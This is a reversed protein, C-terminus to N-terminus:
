FKRAFFLNFRTDRGTSAGNFETNWLLVNLGFELGQGVTWKNHVYFASNKTRGGVAIDSDRPDDVTYGLALRHNGSVNMGFEAWGGSSQVEDGTTTNVGQGVGGRFDSLNSGTWLEGKVDIGGGLNVLFDAGLVSATFDTEGGVATATKEWANLGWIGIESNPGRWGFRAQVNPMGADEGDRVGDADLDKADIAGTLGLAVAFKSNASGGTYRIQPRRDGLNGANWMLSDDNQSPILPSVLDWTQGILWSGQGRALKFFLHRARPTERSESGGGQFDIEIQGTVVWGPMASEPAAFNLGIRTLRPHLTFRNSEGGTMDPSNIWFPSQSNPNPMQTDYILDSRLQGYVTITDKATRVDNQVIPATTAAGLIEYGVEWKAEVSKGDAEAYPYIFYNLPAGKQPPELVLDRGHSFAVASRPLVLNGFVSKAEEDHDRDLWRRSDSADLPMWTGGIKAWMWCHYGGITGTTPVPEPLPIGTVPFGYELFAPIGMARALSIVYSHLDSCNGKKYDCVFAVDGMGLQPSEKNYDYQMSAVTHDFMAKLKALDSSADGAVEKAIEAMRGDIPVLRDAALYRSVDVNYGLPDKTAGAATREVDVQVTVKIPRSLDTFRVYVMRNGQTVERTLRHDAPSTVQLNTVKQFASDSPVPIWLDLQRAGAPPAPVSATYTFRTRLAEKQPEANAQTTALAFQALLVATSLNRLHM